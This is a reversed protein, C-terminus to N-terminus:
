AGAVATWVGTEPYTLLGAAALAIGYPVGGGRAHLREVWGMGVAPAPLPVARMALIALTLLGGLMAADTAYEGVHRWGMWVATAAALKADGGGIWGLAFLCFTLALVAAGCALHLGIAAAPLGAAWAFPLFIAVLALSVRNSITMTFLDSFAAFAMLTPFLAVAAIQLM